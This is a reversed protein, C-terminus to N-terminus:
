KTSKRKKKGAKNTSAHQVTRPQMGLARLPRGHGMRGSHRIDSDDGRNVRGGGIQSSLKETLAYAQTMTYLCM